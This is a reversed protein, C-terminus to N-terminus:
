PQVIDRGTGSLAHRGPGHGGSRGTIVAIVLLLVLALVIAGFVKVWRPTGTPGSSDEVRPIKRSM